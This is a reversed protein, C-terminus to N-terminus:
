PTKSLACLNILAMRESSNNLWGAGGVWWLLVPGAEPSTLRPPGVWGGVWGWIHGRGCVWRLPM